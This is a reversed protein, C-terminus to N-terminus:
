SSAGLTHDLNTTMAEALRLFTRAEDDSLGDMMRTAACAEARRIREIMAEGAATLGLQHSRGDSPHSWKEVLGAELLQGILRTIQAKDRRSAEALSQVTSQPRYHIGKLTKLHSVSLTLGEDRYARRLARKYAHFFLHLTDSFSSM